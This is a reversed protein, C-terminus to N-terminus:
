WTCPALLLGQICTTLVVTQCGEKYPDGFQACMRSEDAHAPAALPAASLAAAALATAVLKRRM